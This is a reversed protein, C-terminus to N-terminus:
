SGSRLVRVAGEGYNGPFAVRNGRPWARSRRPKLRSAREIGVAEVQAGGDHRPRSCGLSRRGVTRYYVKRFVVERVVSMGSRDGDYERM